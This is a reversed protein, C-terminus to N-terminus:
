GKDGNNSALSTRLAKVARHVAVKLAGVTMGSERSAEKLSLERLKTLEIATRQGAPLRAIAARLADPDGPAEDDTGLTAPDVLRDFFTADDALDVPRRGRYRMHDIARRRAIAAVWPLFPRAPDYTQRVQHITLLADQTVDEIQDPDLGTRRLFARMPPVLDRLLRRYAAQDGAQAAAMLRSWDAPGPGSAEM